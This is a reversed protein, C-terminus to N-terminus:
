HLIFYVLEKLLDFPTASGNAVGKSRADYARLAAIIHFTKAYTYNRLGSQMDKLQPYNLGINQTLSADSKDSLSHAVMLNAFYTFLVSMTVVMPNDKPNKAYYDVIQQAKFIHKNALASVLEFNNFERSIGIHDAVLEKSIMKNPEPLSLVLKDMEHVLRSLDAGISAVLLEIAEQSAAVKNRKFQATVFPVLQNDYLRKSEFLYGLQAIQSALRKRRDLLKYKYCVVLITSPLPNKVYHELMEIDGGIAQAERVVVVQRESIMPYRRAADIVQSIHTDAGYMVVQNFDKQEQELANHTIYDAIKDIFYPEDGMLFYIPRYIGNSLESYIDDFSISEKKAM